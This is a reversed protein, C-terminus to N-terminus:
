LIHFPLPHFAAILTLVSASCRFGAYTSSVAQEEELIARAIDQDHGSGTLLELQAGESARRSIHLLDPARRALDPSVGQKLLLHVAFGGKKQITAGTRLGQVQSQCVGLQDRDIAFLQSAIVRCSLLQWVIGM